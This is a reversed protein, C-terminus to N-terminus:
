PTVVRDCISGAPPAGSGDAFPPACTTLRAGPGGPTSPSNNDVVHFARVMAGIDRAYRCNPTDATCDARERNQMEIGWRRAVEDTVRGQPGWETAILVKDWCVDDVIYGGYDQLARGLMRGFETELGEVDFDPPLALLAGMRLVPNDGGYHCSATPPANVYSDAKVAPWRYGGDSQSLWQSAQIVLKLAHTIEGQELDHLRLTGGLSSMGSGGHAGRIGDGTRIDDDPYDVKTVVRGDRCVHVPQSQRITRGDPELFAGAHNPTNNTYSDETTFGPTVPLLDGGFQFVDEVLGACRTQELTWGVTTRNIQQRPASPDLFLIDEDIGPGWTPPEIGAPVYRAGDGLPLNWPSDWAFPQDLPDRVEAPAATPPPAPSATTTTPAATIPPRVTTTPPAPSTTTTTPAATIPPRVTTTTMATSSTPAITTAEITTPGTTPETASSTTPGITSSTAPTASTPAAVAEEPPASTTSRNRIVISEIQQDSCTWGDQGRDCDVQPRGPCNARFDRQAQDLGYATVYCSDAAPRVIRLRRGADAAAVVGLVVVIGLLGAM